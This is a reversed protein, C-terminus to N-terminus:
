ARLRKIRQGFSVGHRLGGDYEDVTGPRVTRAPVRDGDLELTLAEGDQGRGVQQTPNGRVACIECREERLACRSRDHEDAVGITADHDGVGTCAAAIDLREDVDVGEDGVDALADEGNEAIRTGREGDGVGGSDEVKGAVGACGFTVDLREQFRGGDVLREGLIEGFRVAPQDGGALSGDREPRVDGGGFGGRPFRKGLQATIPVSSRTMGGAVCCRMASRAPAVIESTTADCTEITEWGSTVMSAMTAAAAM